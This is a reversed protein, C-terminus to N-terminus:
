KLIEQRIEILGEKQFETLTRTITASVDFDPRIEYEERLRVEVQPVTVPSKLCDWIFAASGNLVHVRDGEEDFIMRENGVQREAVDLRRQYTTTM